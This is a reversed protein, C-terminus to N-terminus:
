APAGAARGLNIEVIEPPRLLRVPAVSTGLGASIILHRGNEVIHGYVYRRGRHAKVHPSGLIPLHVQGGHTHGSITLAVRAPTRAFVNPEHALLIVPSPDGVRALAGPLDDVGRWGARWRTMQDGLGILWFPRGRHVLRIADNEMAPAAARELASRVSRSGDPPDRPDAASWWDHNGLVAHVGLPARLDSLAEAWAHPHVVGTTYRHTCVYDGLLAILDPKLSNARAVAEAIRAQSMWPLGAHIDALVVIRLPLDAPWGPPTLAYRAVTLRFGPEIAGAWGGLGGLALAGGGFSRLLGRRSVLAM